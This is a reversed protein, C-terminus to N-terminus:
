QKTRGSAHLKCAYADPPLFVSRHFPSILYTPALRFPVGYRGGRITDIALYPYSEIELGGKGIM